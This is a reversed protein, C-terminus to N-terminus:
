IGRLAGTIEIFNPGYNAVTKESYSKFYTDLTFESSM